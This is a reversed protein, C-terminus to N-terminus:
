FYFLVQARLKSDNSTINLLPRRRNRITEVYGKVRCNEIQTTIYKKLAPFTSKFSDIFTCADTENLNM